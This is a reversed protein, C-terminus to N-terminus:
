GHKRGKSEGFDDLIRLVRGRRGPTRDRGERDVIRGRGLGVVLPPAEIRGDYEFLRNPTPVDAGPAEGDVAGAKVLNRFVVGSVYVEGDVMTLHYTKWRHVVQCVPCKKLSQPPYPWWQLPVTITGARVDRHKLVFGLPKGM